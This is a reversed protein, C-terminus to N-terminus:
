CALQRTRSCYQSTRTAQIHINYVFTCCVTFSTRGHIVITITTVACRPLPGSGRLYRGDYFACTHGSSAMECEECELQPWKRADTSAAQAGRTEERACVIKYLGSGVRSSAKRERKGRLALGKHVYIRSILM